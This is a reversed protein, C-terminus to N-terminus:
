DKKRPPVLKSARALDIAAKSQEMVKQCAGPFPEPRKLYHHGYAIHLCAELAEVLGILAAERLAPEAGRVDDVLAEVIRKDTADSMARICDAEEKSYETM